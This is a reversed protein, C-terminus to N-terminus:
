GKGRSRFYIAASIAIITAPLIITQNQLKLGILGLYYSALGTIAMAAISGAVARELFGLSDKWHLMLSYGPIVFLWFLAATVKAVEIISEKNYAIKLAAAAVFFTIALLKLEGRLRGLGTAPKNALAM